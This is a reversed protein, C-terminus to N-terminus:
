RGVKVAKVTKVEEGQRVEVLYTGANLQEGFHFVQGPMGKSMFATKGNVDLVRISISEQKPAKVKVNFVNGTPNPFITVELAPNVILVQKPIGVKIICPPTVLISATAKNLCGNTNKLTTYTIVVRGIAKAMVLGTSSVTAKTTDSSSWTGGTTANALQTTKGVCAKKIGTIKNVLPVENVLVSIPSSTNSCGSITNTVKVKYKGLGKAYYTSDTAGVININCLMWQYARNPRNLVTLLVSDGNCISVPGITTIKSFPRLLKIGIKNSAVTTLSVCADYSSLICDITDKNSLSSDFYTVKNTGVNTGNKRWQFNPNIGANTTSASFTIAVGDCAPFTVDSVISITPTSDLLQVNIINSSISSLASCSFSNTLKCSVLDNNSLSSDFYTVKNTGVNTGNKKWQFNPSIGANTTSASFTGVRACAPFKIDLVISITPTSDLLQM